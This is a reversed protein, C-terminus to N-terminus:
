DEEEETEEANNYDEIRELIEMISERQSSSYDFGLIIAEEDEAKGVITADLENEEIIEVTEIMMEQPINLEIYRTENQKGM